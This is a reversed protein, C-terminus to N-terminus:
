GRTLSNGENESCSLTAHSFGLSKFFIYRKKAELSHPRAPLDALQRVGKVAELDSVSEMGQVAGIM